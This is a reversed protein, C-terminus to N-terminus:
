HAVRGPQWRLGFSFLDRNGGFLNNTNAAQNKRSYNFFAFLGARPALLFQVDSSAYWGSFGGSQVQRLYGGGVMWNLRKKMQNHYTGDIRDAYENSILGSSLTDGRSYNMGLSSRGLQKVLGFTGYFYWKRLSQATQFISSTTLGASGRAFWTASLQRAATGAVTHYITDFAKTAPPIPTGPLIEHILQGTYQLGVTQRESTRYNWNVSGGYSVAHTLNAGIGSESYDFNPSVAISTRRSLAHAISLYTTNSLWRSPGDLFNNTVIGATAPNVDFFSYGFSQQTYSYRFSDSFRVNWRPRTYILLDLNANQNSFNGVVQGNAIAMSPAYQLAFRSNRGLRHDYVVNTQLVAAEYTAGPLASTGEFRDVVGSIAASPIYLSGWGIGERNGALLGSSGIQRIYSDAWAMGVPSAPETNSNDAKKSADQGAPNEKGTAQGTEQAWGSQPLWLAVVIIFLALWLSTSRHKKSLM